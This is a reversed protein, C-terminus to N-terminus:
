SLGSRMEDRLSRAPSMRRGSSYISLWTRRGCVHEAQGALKLVRFRWPDEAPITRLAQEALLRASAYQGERLRVEGRAVGFLADDLGTGATTTTWRDITAIQAAELLSDLAERLLASREARLRHREVLEFAADWGRRERYIALCTALAHQKESATYYLDKEGLFTQALPHMEIRSGRAAVLGVMLSEALVQEGTPGLVAFVLPRDAVPLLALLALGKQVPEDLDRFVEEVLFDYPEGRANGTALADVDLVGALGLVAPWGKALAVVELASESHDDSLLQEAEDDIMALEAQTVELVKGYLADKRSVWAPTRRSAIM